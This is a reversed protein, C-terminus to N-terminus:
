VQNADYDNHALAFAPPEDPVDYYPKQPIENIRAMEEDTLAFDFIDINAAMHAPNSSKPFVVNDEQLHWRLVVQAASKGYRGALETLVPTALLAADGHGLPYWGEVVIGKEALWRTFAHQNWRPNVEIQLAQPVISGADLVEQVKAQSFNSLGISRVKGAAVAQELVGWAELYEGYPQHLLLLDVHDMDLRRLSDDVARMTETAPYDQPFLKTTVFLDERDVDSARVAQGVAVENFYANATDIHRYGLDIAEPLHRRVEDGSMMFVGYGIQPIELGNNMTLSQM